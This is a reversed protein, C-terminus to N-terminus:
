VVSKRDLLDIPNFEREGSSIKNKFIQIFDNNRVDKKIGNTIYCDKFGDSNFDEFLISWSWDTQAIGSMQAIESYYGNGQNLQLTNFMYQFYNGQNVNDWFAEENMAGMNTKSRYHDSASMDLVGIDNLGDNNIDAVDSGMSFNSIHGTRTELENVFKKGGQNIYLFDPKEYDNCVYLDLWGDDNVDNVLVNLGFGHNQIGYEVTKDEYKGEDNRIYLRDTYFENIEEQTPQPKGLYQLFKGDPPQNVVYLDKDGDNDVDFFAAQTTFGHDDIGYKKAEDRFRNNGRNVLLQNRRKETDMTPGFKCVYIDMLGDNNIDVVSVGSTWYNDEPLATDSIDEFQMNGKNMYLVDSKLSQGMYIDPLGDNNFDAVGVGSGMYISSWTFYNLGATEEVSNNATVGTEEPDLIKFKTPTIKISEWDISQITEVETSNPNSEEGCSWFMCGALLLIIYNIRMPLNYKM